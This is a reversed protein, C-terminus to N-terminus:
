IPIGAICVKRHRSIIRISSTHAHAGPANQAIAASLSGTGLRRAFGM